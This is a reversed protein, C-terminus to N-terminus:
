STNRMVLREVNRWEILMVEEDNQVADNLRGQQFCDWIWDTLIEGVAENGFNEVNKKVAILTKSTSIQVVGKYVTGFSGSGLVETFGKTAESLEQYTFSRLNTEVIDNDPRTKLPKKLYISLFGLCSAGIIVFNFFVSSGLLVSGVLIFTGHDDKRSSGEPSQSTHEGKKVKILVISKESSGQRGFSLPLKKKWCTPGGYVVAACFCDSLCSDRCEQDSIGELREYDSTPWNANNIQLLEYLGENARQGNYDDCSVSFNPKCNGYKDDPDVLSYGVACECVSRGDANLSCLSNYGCAGSGLDAPVDLCINDPERWISSWNPTGTFSKPHYSQVFVGDVNLTARHYYETTPLARNPTLTVRDGNRRLIHMYGSGDFLVQYGSNSANSSDFTESSYYAKYAYDTLIERTNLVLNGDKLLRLQFRGKSFSIQSRRSYLAGETQMIQTPLLTDTPYDFSEWLKTSDSSLLQFNGTDNFFARSVQGSITGSNWLQKGEPDSLVLGRDASLQVRSGRPVANGGDAFWVITRDPIKNYWISLLFQDSKEDIKRFGFAFDEGPSLWSPPTANDTATLSSNLEITGNTSTQALAFAPLLALLLLNLHCFLAPSYPMPLIM